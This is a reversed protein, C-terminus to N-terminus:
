AYTEPIGRARVDSPMLSPTAVIVRDVDRLAARGEDTQELKWLEQRECAHTPETGVRM